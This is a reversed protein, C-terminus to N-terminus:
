VRGVKFYLRKARAARKECVIAEEAYNLGFVNCLLHLHKQLFMIQEEPPRVHVALSLESAAELFALNEYVIDEGYFDTELEYAFGRREPPPASTPAEAVDGRELILGCSVALPEAIRMVAEPLTSYFRVLCSPEFLFHWQMIVDGATQRFEYLFKTLCELPFHLNKCGPRYVTFQKWAAAMSLTYRALKCIYM